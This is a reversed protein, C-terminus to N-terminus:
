AARSSTVRAMELQAPLSVPMDRECAKALRKLREVNPAHVIVGALSPDLLAHALCLDEAEWGPTSYLFAFPNTVEEAVAKKRGLGFLGKQTEPAAPRKPAVLLSKPFYDTSFVIMQQDRASRLCSRQRADMQIHSPTFLVDFRGSNIYVEMVESNGRLGLRKIRTDARLTKLSQSPLETESPDDLIVSDIYGLGSAKLVAGTVASLGEPTFNRKGNPLPGLTLAIHLLDREVQRLVEGATRILTPDLSDIFFSNVGEEVATDILNRIGNAGTVAVASDLTLTIASVASGVEGLPRYRM